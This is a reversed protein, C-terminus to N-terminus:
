VNWIDTWFMNIIYDRNPFNNRFLIRYFMDQKNKPLTQQNQGETNLISMNSNYTNDTMSQNLYNNLRLNFNTLSESLKSPNRWLHSDPILEEGYISNEFSKRIIYKTIPLSKNSYNVERKIIPHISLIYEIFTKNIFPQRIEIGFNSSIKDTRLLNHQHLTKLLQISKQQFLIDSLNKFQDYGGLENLGDGTLLVKINTNSSIYKIMYYFPISERVTTPDYSELLYVINNIDSSLVEIENINILHHDLVINYKNELFVIFKQAYSNDLDDSGLTDGVTFIHLPNLTFDNKISVLYKVVLATILTSNFGGSLLIGVPKDTNRYRSLVNEEIISSIFEYIGNLTDPDTKNIICNNLDNYHDISYYQIFDGSTSNINQHGITNQFSWYHGPLVYNIEYSVNKIINLPLGKIESIFIYVNNFTNKVYYLPKVGFNDRVAFCNVSDLVYTNINETLVFAYDGDILNLADILCQDCSVNSDYNSIYIPLIIEVDCKSSLDCACLNFKNILTQYNYIEGNCILNRTPRSNLSPYLLSGDPNKKNMVYKIPDTFPQTANFTSDNIILRHYYLSFNWQIYKSIDNRTLNSHVQNLERANLNSINNTSFTNITTEHPGRSKINNFAKIFDISVNYDNYLILTLAGM